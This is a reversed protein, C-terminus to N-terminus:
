ICNETIFKPGAILKAKFWEGIQVEKLRRNKVRNDGDMYSDCGWDFAASAHWYSAKDRKRM